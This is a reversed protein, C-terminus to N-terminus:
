GNEMQQEFDDYDINGLEYDLKRLLRFASKRYIGDMSYVQHIAERAETLKEINIYANGLYWYAKETVVPKNDVNELVAKFSTISESFHGSNYQIIGKNLYAQVAASEDSHNEIIKNYFELAASINGSIAEEFGRNLLSDAPAMESKQSRLIPASSLNEVVNIENLTLDGIKQNTDIQLINVAIVLLAVAAAAALWKQSRQLSYIIGSQEASTSDDSNRDTSSRSEMISKVSLETELLEIYDPRQLLQEWLQLAEEESLRGKIYADIQKELELDRSNNNM